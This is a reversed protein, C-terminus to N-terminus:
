HRSGVETEALMVKRLRRLARSSEAVMFRRLLLNDLVSVWRRHLCYAFTREFFTGNEDPTLTYTIIARVQGDIAGEIRWHYPPERESVTWTVIGEYSALRFHEVVQEGRRMPSHIQGMVAQSAPHWAPWNGSTTVYDFVCEIPLPLHRSTQILSERIVAKKPHDMELM